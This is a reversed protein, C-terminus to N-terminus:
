DRGSSLSDETPYITANMCVYVRTKVYVTPLNSRIAEQLVVSVCMNYANRLLWVCVCVSSVFENNRPENNVCTRVSDLPHSTKERLNGDSGQFQM